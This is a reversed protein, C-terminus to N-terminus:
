GMKETRAARATASPVHSQPITTHPVPIPIDKAALLTFPIRQATHVSFIPYHCNAKGLKELDDDNAGYDRYEIGMEELLKKLREKLGLAAHDSALAVVM